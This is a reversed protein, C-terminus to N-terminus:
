FGFCGVFKYNILWHSNFERIAGQGGKGSLISSLHNNVPM